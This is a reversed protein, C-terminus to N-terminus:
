LQYFFECETVVDAYKSLRKIIMFYLKDYLMGSADFQSHYMSHYMAHLQPCAKSSM